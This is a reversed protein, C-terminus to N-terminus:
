DFHSIAVKHGVRELQPLYEYLNSKPFAVMQLPTDDVETPNLNLVDAVVLADVGYAEYNEDDSFLLVRDEHMEKTRNYIRLKENMAKM